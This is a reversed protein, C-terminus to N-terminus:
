SLLALHAAFKGAGLVPLRDLPRAAPSIGLATAAGSRNTCELARPAAASQEESATQGAVRDGFIFLHVASCRLAHVAALIWVGGSSRAGPATTPGRPLLARRMRQLRFIGM